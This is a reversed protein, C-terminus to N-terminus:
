KAAAKAPISDMQIIGGQIDVTHIEVPVNIGTRDRAQIVAQAIGNCCPVEMKLVTISKPKAVAFIGALKKRYYDLDDLKPCGVLLSRGKMYDEHIGPLAFPVCDACILLDAEKLFPSEPSVLTIQVPWHTLQSQAPTTRVRGDTEGAAAAADFAQAMSGPCGCPLPTDKEEVAPEKKEEADRGALHKEVAKMDFDEAEREEITIADEPCEGLCDGLGDCYIESVLKAKGDIVQLAGEHCAPVCLGCGTCKDEDITVIKRTNRM